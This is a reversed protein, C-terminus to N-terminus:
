VQMAHNCCTCVHWACTGVTYGIPFSVGTIGFLVAYDKLSFNSVTPTPHSSICNYGDITSTSTKGLSPARDVVPFKPIDLVVGM